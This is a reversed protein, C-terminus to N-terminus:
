LENCENETANGYTNRWKNIENTWLFGNQHGIRKVFHSWDFDATKRDSIHPYYVISDFRSAPFANLYPYMCQIDDPRM